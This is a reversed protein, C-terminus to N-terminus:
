RFMYRLSLMMVYVDSIGASTQLPATIVDGGSSIPALRYSVRGQPDAGANTLIQNQRIRQGVGWDHNLLNGFNTIDLRIQGSHRGGINVFIDQSLSLDMRNVIPLFVANREAYEGRHARLYPDAKIYTEFAAAQEM